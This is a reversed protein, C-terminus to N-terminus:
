VSPEATILLALYKPPLSTVEMKRNLFIHRTSGTALVRGGEAARMEYAFKVLRRNGEEMWTKIIVEDDYRAPSRYRCSAEAVALFLGETHHSHLAFSAPSYLFFFWGWVTLPELPSPEVPRAGRWSVWAAFALLCLTSLVCGIVQPPLSGGVLTHLLGVSGPYLPLFARLAPDYGETIIRTYLHSDWRDHARELLAVADAATAPPAGGPDDLGIPTGQAPVDLPAVPAAM